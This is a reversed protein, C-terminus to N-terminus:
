EFLNTSLYRLANDPIVALIKGEIVESLKLAGALAAGASIGCAIGEKNMLLKATEVAEETSIKIIGDFLQLDTVSPIFGAGIGQINHTGSKEGSLVASEAPEVGYFATKFNNEKSYKAIGTLTGGTGVGAVVADLDPIDRFIEVATHEYHAKPNLPNDFQGVIVAGKIQSKLEKAKAIAGKMGENVPTLVIQAGYGKLIKRRELSMNEPMTLILKIGYYACTMALGIGTNGSTPEIVVSNKTIVKDKLWKEIIYVSIRDKISGAPTFYELKLFISSNKKAKESKINNLKVIPTNAATQLINDFVM